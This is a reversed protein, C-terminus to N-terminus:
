WLTIIWYVVLSAVIAGLFSFIGIKTQANVSTKSSKIIENHRREILADDKIQHALRIRENVSLKKVREQWVDCNLEHDKHYQDDYACRVEIGRNKARHDIGFNCTGCVKRM